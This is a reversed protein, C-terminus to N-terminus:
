SKKRLGFLGLIGMGLLMMSTPEPVIPGVVNGAGIGGDILYGTTIGPPVDFQLYFADSTSGSPLTFDVGYSDVSSDRVTVPQYGVLNLKGSGITSFGYPNDFTYRGLTANSGGGLNKVQYFYTYVNSDLFVAFDVSGQTRLQTGGVGGMVDITTPASIPLSVLSGFGTIGSLDFAYAKSTGFTLVLGLLLIAILLKKM